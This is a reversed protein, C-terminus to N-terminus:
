PAIYLDFSGYYGTPEGKAVKPKKGFLGSYCSIKIQAPGPVVPLMKISKSRGKFTFAAVRAFGVSDWVYCYFPVPTKTEFKVNIAKGATARTPADIAVDGSMIVDLPQMANAFNTGLISFTTLAICIFASRRM